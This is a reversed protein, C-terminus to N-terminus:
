EEAEEVEIETVEPGGDAALEQDARMLYNEARQVRTEVSQFRKDFHRTQWGNLLFLGVLVLVLAANGNVAQIMLDTLESM